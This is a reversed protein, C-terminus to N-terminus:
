QSYKSKKLIIVFGLNQLLFILTDKATMIEQLSRGMLLLMDDLYVIIRINIRRFLAIPIKLLKTFAKPTSGLGFCLCLFEYFNVSWKFRVYKSSQKSLLIVFYADKLDIKCLFDNQKLLFGLCHLGEM